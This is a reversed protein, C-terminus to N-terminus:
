EVLWTPSRTQLARSFFQSLSFYVFILRQYNDLTISYIIAVSGLAVGLIVTAVTEFRGHGYPHDEDADKSAVRAAFLV